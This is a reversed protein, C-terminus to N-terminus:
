TQRRITQSMPHDASGLQSSSLSGTQQRQSAVFQIMPIDSAGGIDDDNDDGLTDTDFLHNGSYGDLMATTSYDDLSGIISRKKRGLLIPRQKTQDICKSIICFAQTTNIYSTVASIGTCEFLTHSFVHKNCFVCQSSLGSQQPEGPNYCFRIWPRLLVSSSSQILLLACIALLCTRGYCNTTKKVNNIPNMMEGTRKSVSTGTSQNMTRATELGHAFLIEDITRVTLGAVLEVTATTAEHAFRELVDDVVAADVVVFAIGVAGVIAALAAVLALAFRAGHRAPSANSGGLLREFLGNHFFSGHRRGDVCVIVKETVVRADVVIGLASVLTVFDIVANENNSVAGFVAFVKPNEFVAPAERPALFSVHFDNTATVSATYRAVS